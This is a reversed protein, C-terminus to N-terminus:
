VDGQIQETICEQRVVTSITAKKSQAVRHASLYGFEATRNIRLNQDLLYTLRFM